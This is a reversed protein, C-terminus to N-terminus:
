PQLMTAIRLPGDAGQPRHLLRWDPCLGAPSSGILLELDAAYGSGQGQRAAVRNLRDSPLPQEKRGTMPGDILYEPLKKPPLATSGFM